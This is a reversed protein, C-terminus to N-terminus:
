GIGTSSCWHILSDVQGHHFAEHGGYGDLWELANMLRLGGEYRLDPNWSVPWEQVYAKTQSRARALWFLIAQKPTGNPPPPPLYTIGEPPLVGERLPRSILERLYVEDTAIHMFVEGL